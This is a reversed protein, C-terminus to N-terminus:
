LETLHLSNVWPVRGGALGGGCPVTTFLLTNSGRVLDVYGIVDPRVNSTAAWSGTPAPLLRRVAGSVSVGTQCNGTLPRDFLFVETQEASVWLAELLYRGARPANFTVSFNESPGGTANASMILKQDNDYRM